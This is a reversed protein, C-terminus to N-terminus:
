APFSYRIWGSGSGHSPPPCGRAQLTPCPCMCAPYGQLRHAGFYGFDSAGVTDPWGSPLVTARSIDGPRRLCQPTTSRVCAHFNPAGQARSFRSVRNGDAAPLPRISPLLRHAILGVHVAIPLRVIAYYWRLPRVCALLASPSRPPFAMSWPSRRFLGARTPSSVRCKIGSTSIRCGYGSTRKADLCGPYSGHANPASARIQAPPGTVTM